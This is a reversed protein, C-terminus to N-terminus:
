YGGTYYYTVLIRNYNWGGGIKQPFGSKLTSWYPIDILQFNHSNSITGTYINSDYVYSKTVKKAQASAGGVFMLGLIITSILYKKM